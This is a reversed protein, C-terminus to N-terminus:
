DLYLVSMMFLFSAKEMINTNFYPYGTSLIVLIYILSALFVFYEINSASAINLTKYRRSTM